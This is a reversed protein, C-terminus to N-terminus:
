GLVLMGSLPSLCLPMLKIKTVLSLHLCCLVCCKFSKAMIYLLKQRHPVVLHWFCKSSTRKIIEFTKELRFSEVIRNLESQRIEQLQVDYVWREPPKYRLDTRKDLGWSLGSVRHTQFWVQPSELADGSLNLLLVTQRALVASPVM